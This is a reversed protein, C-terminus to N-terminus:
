TLGEIEINLVSYQPYELTFRWSKAFGYVVDTDYVDGAMWVVPVARVATLARVIADRRVNLCEVSADLRSSSARELVTLVGYADKNKLSYDDLGLGVGWRTDGVAFANGVICTGIKPAAGALEIEVRSPVAAVPLGTFIATGKVFFEAQWYTYYDIIPEVVSLLDASREDVLETGNFVRVTASECVVDLLAVSDVRQGPAIAMVLSGGASTCITGVANDFAAWRNTPALDLWRAPDSEPPTASPGAVLCEYIRHTQTRIVKAGVAYTSGALWAPHDTEAVTSSLLRADTMPVPRIFKM